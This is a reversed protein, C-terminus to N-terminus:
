FLKMQMTEFTEKRLEAATMKRIVPASSQATRPEKGPLALGEKRMLRECTRWAEEALLVLKGGKYQLVDHHKNYFLLDHDHSEFDASDHCYEHVLTLLVEYMGSLGRSAARELIKRNLTVHSCGDTWAEAVDSTGAKLERIGSCKEAASFWEHFKQHRSRLAELVCRAGPELDEDELAQYNESCDLAVEGFEVVEFPLRYGLRRELTSALDEMSDARFRELTERSLVFAAGERHLKAGTRNKGEPAVTIRSHRLLERLDCHRGTADTFLKLDQVPIEDLGENGYWWQRAIFQREDKNLSGKAAVKQLSVRELQERIRGWVPCRHLVIDNRAFNVELPRKTVVVGGCGFRYQEYKKVLVGQNYVALEGNRAVRIWADDTEIDWKQASANKSIVRGNLSVPIACYRVLETFDALVEDLEGPELAKYLRGAVNCGKVQYLGETLVYDLGSNRIDVSMRFTGTRWTNVGFAMLQGRGMRFRGFIADGEEHPTGFQGFWNIIEDKSRFGRGDDRISFANADGGVSIRTAGADVSNMVGELLAKSLTGAQNEMISLLINTHVTFGLKESKM